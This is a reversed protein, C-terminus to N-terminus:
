IVICVSFIPNGNVSQWIVAELIKRDDDFM